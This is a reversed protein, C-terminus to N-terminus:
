LKNFKILIEWPEQVFDRIFHLANFFDFVRSFVRPAKQRGLGSPPFSLFLFIIFFSGGLMKKYENEYLYAPKRLERLLLIIEQENSRKKDEKLNISRIM